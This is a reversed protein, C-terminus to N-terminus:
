SSDLEKESRSRFWRFKQLFEQLFLKAMFVDIKPSGAFAVSLDFSVIFVTDFNSHRRGLVDEFPVQGRPGGFGNVDVAMGPLGGM